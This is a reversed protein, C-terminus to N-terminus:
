CTLVSADVVRKTELRGNPYRNIEKQVLADINANYLEVASDKIRKLQKQNFEVEVLLEFEETTYKKKNFKIRRQKEKTLEQELRQIVIDKNQLEQKHSENSKRLESRLMAIIEDRMQIDEVLQDSGVINRLAQIKEEVHEFAVIVGGELL